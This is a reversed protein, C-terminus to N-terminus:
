KETGEILMLLEKYKDAAAPPLQLEQPVECLGSRIEAFASILVQKIKESSQNALLVSMEESKRNLGNVLTQYRVLLGAVVEDRDLLQGRREANLLQLQLVKEAHLNETVSSKSLAPSGTKQLTFETYWRMLNQSDYTKGNANKKLGKTVWNHITQRSYGTFEVVQDLTLATFDVDSKAIDRRMSHALEKIATAKGATANKVLATKVAIVTALRSQNWTDAVEHDAQFLIELDGRGIHLTDEAEEITVAATALGRVNRLFRGRDWAARLKKGLRKQGLDFKLKESAEAISECDLAALRVSEVSPGRPKNVRRKWKKGAKKPKVVKKTAKKM